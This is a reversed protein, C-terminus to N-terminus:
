LKRKFQRDLQDRTLLIMTPRGHPCTFGLRSGIIDRILARMEDLHLSQGAKIAARCAMRTVIRDRLVEVEEVRGLTEVDDLLDAIVGAPDFKPLDAPVSQVLFTSGGFPEVKLGIQELVPLLRSIFPVSALPVDLSVPILLPQTSMAQRRASFKMYLLREHAAHQDIMLLDGGAQAIIYCLGIQGLPEPLVGGRVLAEIAPTEEPKETVHGLSQSLPRVSCDGGIDIPAPSPSAASMVQDLERNADAFESASRRFGSFDVGVPAQIHSTYLSFDVPMSSLAGTGEPQPIEFPLHSQSARSDFDGGGTGEFEMSPILNAARLRESVTKHLIGNVQAENRFRVEEKTPHVNIDVEGPPLILDLVVVPYRQVMILGKYADQLVFSLSRSSVPRGNVFFFQHRRDKRNYAPRLIFGRIRIGHRTADVDLLNEQVQSGLVMSVRESWPQDPPLEMLVTKENSVTFGVDPRILAQRTLMSLAQQTESGASKMFKLRAPTNYFLDRVRIDTGEPAGAPEIRPESGGESTIRTGAVNDRKRTLIQLRSVAAISALAEGRFGRTELSWLDDFESIKSTAHRVLSLEADQRDMGCGNDSVRLDRTENGIEVVVRTAGADLANEVLEKIVSAPRVIVEGAAIKNVLTEPLLRIM